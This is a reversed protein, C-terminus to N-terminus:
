RMSDWPVPIAKPPAKPQLYIAGGSNNLYLRTPRQYTNQLFQAFEPCTIAVNNLAAERSLSNFANTADVPLMADSNADQYLERMSHIAAEIGSKQGACTQLAGASHKVDPRLVMMITKGIIRRITEGIGIPRIGPNKDLPILRSALLETLHNPDCPERCLKRALNAMAEGLAPQESKFHKYLLISKWTDSDVQSPGSSRQLNSTARM